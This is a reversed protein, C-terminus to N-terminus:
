SSTPMFVHVCCFGLQLYQLSRTSTCRPMLQLAMADGVVVGVVEGAVALAVAVVVVAV